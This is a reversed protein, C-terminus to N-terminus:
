FDPTDAYEAYFVQIDISGTVSGFHYSTTDTGTNYRAAAGAATTAAYPVARLTVGTSGTNLGANAGPNPSKGRITDNAAFAAGASTQAKGVAANLTTVNTTLATRASWVLAVSMTGDQSTNTTQARSFLALAAGYKMTYWLVEAGPPLQRTLTLELANATVTVRERISRVRYSGAPSSHSLTEGGVIPVSSPM